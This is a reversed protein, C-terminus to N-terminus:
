PNVVIICTPPQALACPATITIQTPEGPLPTNAAASISVRPSVGTANVGELSFNYVVDRAPFLGPIEDGSVVPGVLVNDRYLRHSTANPGATFTVVGAEQAFAPLAVLALLLILLNRM